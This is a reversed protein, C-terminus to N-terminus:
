MRIFVDLGIAYVSCSYPAPHVKVVKRKDVVVVTFRAVERVRVRVVARRPDVSDGPLLRLSLSTAFFTWRTL